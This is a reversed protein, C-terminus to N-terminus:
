SAILRVLERMDKLELLNRAAEVVALDQELALLFDEELYGAGAV